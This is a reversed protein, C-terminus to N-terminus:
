LNKKRKKGKRDKAMVWEPERYDYHYGVISRQDEGPYDEIKGEYEVIIEDVDKANEMFLITSIM